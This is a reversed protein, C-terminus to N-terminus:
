QLAFRVGNRMGMLGGLFGDLIIRNWSDFYAYISFKAKAALGLSTIAMVLIYFVFGTLGTFGLIGAIVGGVISLFTRSYCIIKNNNQLNEAHFSPIDADSSKKGSAVSDDHGAM